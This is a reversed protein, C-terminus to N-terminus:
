PQYGFAEFYSACGEYIRQKLVESLEPYSGPRHKRSAECFDSFRERAAKFGHLGLSAYLQELQGMPDSILDEYRLEHLQGPGLLPRDRFYADYVWRHSSLVVEATEKAAEEAYPSEDTIGVLRHLNSRFVRYPHRSIHVFRAQPFVERILEIRGTHAPSKLVLRRGPNVLAVKRLFRLWRRKWQERREQSLLRLTFYHDYHTRRVPFYLAMFPSLGAAMLAFEDEQPEHPRLYRPATSRRISGALIRRLWQFYLWRTLRGSFRQSHGELILFTHSNFAQFSSCYGLSPDQALLKHLHTTGSRWQGLIFLPPQIEVSELRAAFEREELWTVAQTVLSNLSLTLADRWGLGTLDFDNDLLLELWHQATIGGIRLIM